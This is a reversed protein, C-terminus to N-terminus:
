KYITKDMERKFRIVEITDFGEDKAPKEFKKRNAFLVAPPFMNPDKIERLEESTLLKGYTDIMRKSANFQAIEIPEPAGKKKLATIWVLKVPLKRKQAWKIVSARSKKTMYTNDLVFLREGTEYREQMLVVLDELTGGQEDRNLRYYGEEIFRQAYRSKGIAPYGMIM